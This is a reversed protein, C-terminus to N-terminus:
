DQNSKKLNLIKETRKKFIPKAIKKYNKKRLIIKQKTKIKFKTCTIIIKRIYQNPAIYMAILEDM